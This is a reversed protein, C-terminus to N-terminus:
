FTIRLRRVGPRWHLLLGLGIMLPVAALPVIVLPGGIFAILWLFIVLFPMDALAVLSGSSFFERLAEFGSLNNVLGGTSDPKAEMRLSLVKSM